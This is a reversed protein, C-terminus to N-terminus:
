QRSLTFLTGEFELVVGNRLIRHLLPGEQLRDGEQYRRLNILVFRERPNESWAHVNLNLRPLKIRIAPPLAELPPAALNEVVEARSPADAEVPEPPVPKIRVLEGALDRVAARADSPGNEMIEPTTGTAIRDARDRPLLFLLIIVAMALMGAFAVVAMWAKSEGQAAVAPGERLRDAAARARERDSKRLADLIMSM